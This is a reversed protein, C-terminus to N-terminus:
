KFLSIFHIVLALTSLLFVFWFTFSTVREKLLTTKKQFIFVRVITVFCFLFFALAFSIMGADAASEIGYYEDLLRLGYHAGTFGILIFILIEFLTVLYLKLHM